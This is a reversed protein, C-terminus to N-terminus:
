MLEPDYGTAEDLEAKLRGEKIFDALQRVEEESLPSRPEQNVEPTQENEM